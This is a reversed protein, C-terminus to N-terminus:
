DDQTELHITYATGSSDCDYGKAKLAAEVAEGADKSTDCYVTVTVTGDDNYVVTANLDTYGSAYTATKKDSSITWKSGQFKYLDTVNLDAMDINNLETNNLYSSGGGSGNLDSIVAIINSANANQKLNKFKPIAVAALVGIIVIVFILEILTFGKRM